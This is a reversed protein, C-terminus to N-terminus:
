LQLCQWYGLLLLDFHVGLFEKKGKKDRQRKVEAVRAPKTHKNDRKKGSEKKLRKKRL